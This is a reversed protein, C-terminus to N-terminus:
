QFSSAAPKLQIYYESTMQIYADTFNGDDDHIIIEEEELIGFAFKFEMMLRKDHRNSKTKVRVLKRCFLGRRQAKDMFEMGEKCPLIICLKGDKRLLKNVGEILDEFTLSDTHRAKLRSSEYPKSAQHFYPPNSVILDYLPENVSASFEQFSCHYSRLRNYWPSIRFNGHSQEFAKEDLDVADILAHSKQALMLAIIGTGTGIDLIRQSGNPRIWSGFIVADTGVKM